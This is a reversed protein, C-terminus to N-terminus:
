GLQDGGKILPYTKVYYEGNLVQSEIKKYDDMSIAVFRIYNGAKLLFPQEREWDFLRIPTRGILRWGGPSDIPYIGTQKGAIGVSGGAIKERPTKLRPTAIKESMGGLYPFGPTFGLMYILYDTGSHIDIVENATLKNYQAVYELDPGYDGGYAVPVETVFPPPLVTGGRKTELNQLYKLLQICSIISPNYLFLISRYTPIWEILGEIKNNELLNVIERIRKIIEPKIEEGFEMVLATDGSNHYKVDNM